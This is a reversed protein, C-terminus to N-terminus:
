IARALAKIPRGGEGAFAPEEGAATGPEEGAATGPEEGAATGPEKDTTGTRYPRGKSEKSLEALL